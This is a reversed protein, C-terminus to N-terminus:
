RKDVQESAGVGDMFTEHLRDCEGGSYLVRKRGRSSSGQGTGGGPKM